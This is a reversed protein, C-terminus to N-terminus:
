KELCYSRKRLIAEHRLIVLKQSNKRGIKALNQRFYTAKEAM